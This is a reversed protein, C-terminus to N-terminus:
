YLYRVLLDKENKNVIFLLKAVETVYPTLGAVLCLENVNFIYNIQLVRFIYAKRDYLSVYKLTNSVV